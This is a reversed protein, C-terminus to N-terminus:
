VGESLLGRYVAEMVLPPVANGIGKAALTRSEPLQYWDPFSQFRALARPTMAVVKGGDFARTPRKQGMSSTLTFCPQDASRITLGRERDPTPNGANQCDVIFAKSGHENAGITQAPEEEYRIGDGFKDANKGVLFARVGLQNHNATVTPSPLDDQTTVIEGDYGGQAVLVAKWHQSNSANVCRTPEDVLSVGVGPAAHEESTNAGGILMTHLEEPLRAMQWPAFQSEPLTHLIDEIAAYWGVWSVAEPLYPVFGGRVARVIMRKRTQAVGYDAANVVEVNLWYGAKHLANEIIHWSQSKQYAQVNELTFVQPRLISVFTVIKRALARDLDTEVGGAKAVSFNPCPPSAHLVDVQEFDTANCDLIDAVAIHKGLNANGVEAIEPLLEIGWALELGAAQAGIDAGGFGSFLSAFTKM